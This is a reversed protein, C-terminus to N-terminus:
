ISIKGDFGTNKIKAAAPASDVENVTSQASNEKEIVIYVFFVFLMTIAVAVMGTILKKNSKFSFKPKNGDLM